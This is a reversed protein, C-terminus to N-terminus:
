RRRRPALNPSCSRPRPWGGANRAPASRSGGGPSAHALQAGFHAYVLRDFAEGGIDPDGGPRGVVHFGSRGAALVATDFTGGGLDYVAFREGATGGEHLYHAAAAVPEALLTVGSGPLVRTAAEALEARQGDTWAVPHTIVAEAPDTGDHRRRAEHVFLSLLAAIADAATVAEGGLLM